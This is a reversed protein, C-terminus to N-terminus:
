ASTSSSAASLGAAAGLRLLRQAREATSGTTLRYGLYLSAGASLTTLCQTSGLGRALAATVPRRCRAPAAGLSDPEPWSRGACRRGRHRGRVLLDGDGRSSGSDACCRPRRRPVRAAALAPDDVRQRAPGAARVQEVIEAIPVGAIATLQKGVLSRGTAISGVVHLGDAFDYLRLPYFHFTRAHAPDFPFIGTHGDREGPLADPADARRRARRPLDLLRARALDRRRPACARAAAGPPLPGSPHAGDGRRPRSRASCRRRRRRSRQAPVASPSRSSSPSFCPSGPWSETSPTRRSM